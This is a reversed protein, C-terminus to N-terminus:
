INFTFGPFKPHHSVLEAFYEGSEAHRIAKARLSELIGSNWTQHLTFQRCHISSNFQKKSKRLKGKKKILNEDPM